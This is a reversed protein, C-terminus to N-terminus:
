GVEVERVSGKLETILSGQEDSVEVKRAFIREVIENLALEHKIKDINYM